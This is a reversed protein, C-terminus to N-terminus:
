KTLLEFRHNQNDKWETTELYAADCLQRGCAKMVYCMTYLSCAACGNGECPVLRNNRSVKSKLGLLGGIM